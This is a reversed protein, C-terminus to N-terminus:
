IDTLGLGKARLMRQEKSANLISKTQKRSIIAFIITAVLWVVFAIGVAKWKGVFYFAFVPILLWFIKYFRSWIKDVQEKEAMCVPTTCDTREGKGDMVFYYRTADDYTYYVFWFPVMVYCGKTKLDYSHSMNLNRTNQGSLHNQVAEKAKEEMQKVGNREWTLDKDTDPAVALPAKDTGTGLIEPRYNQMMQPDYPYCSGFRKLEEPVENGNYALCLFNFNGQVQGNTPRYRTVTRTEPKGDRYTTEKADYGVECSYSVQYTGEYLFMPLYARIVDESRIKEFIDTPVYDRKILTEVMKKDFNAETTSFAIIREPTPVDRQTVMPNVATNHCYPCEVKPQFPSFQSIINGCSPCKVQQLTVTDAM